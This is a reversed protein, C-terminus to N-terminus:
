VESYSVKEGNVTALAQIIGQYDDASYSDGAALVAFYKIVAVTNDYGLYILGTNGAPATILISKRNTNAALVQSGGAASTISALGWNEPTSDGSLQDAITQFVTSGSLILSSDDVDGSAISFTITMPNVADPNRFMLDNFSDDLLKIGIGVDLDQEPQGGIRVKPSSVISCTRLKLKSGYASFQRSGGAAMTISVKQYYSGAM